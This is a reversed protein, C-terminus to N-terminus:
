LERSVLFPKSPPSPVWSSYPRRGLWDGAAFVGVVPLTQALEMSNSSRVKAPNQCFSRAGGGAGLSPPFPCPPWSRYSAPAQESDAEQAGSAWPGTECACNSWTRTRHGARIPPWSCAVWGGLTSPVAPNRPHPAKLASAQDPCVPGLLCGTRPAPCHKQRRRQDM